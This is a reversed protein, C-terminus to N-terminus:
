TKSIGEEKYKELVERMTWIKCDKKSFGLLSVYKYLTKIDKAEIELFEPVYNYKGLYKDFDFKVDDIRYEIRIKDIVSFIKYGLSKFIESTKEFDSVEIEVEKCVKAEKNKQLKKYTLTIKNDENRLRLIENNINLKKDFTDFFLMHLKEEFVKKAGLSLLKKELKRHSVNLIKLEIETM